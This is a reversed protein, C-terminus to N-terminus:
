DEFVLNGWTHFRHGHTGGDNDPWSYLVYPDEPKGTYWWRRLHVGWKDGPSPPLAAGEDIKRLAAFPVAIELTWGEDIDDSQNLTGQIDVARLLGECTWDGHLMEELPKLPWPFGYQRCLDEPLRTGEPPFDFWMDRVNNLPNMHFEFYRKGDFGPDFLTEIINEPPDATYMVADRETSFGRVDPDTVAYAFYLYQDDWVMKATTSYRSTKGDLVNGFVWTPLTQKWVPDDLKGDIVPPTDTKRCEYERYAGTKPHSESLQKYFFKAWLHNVDHEVALKFQECAHRYKGQGLFGLGVIFRPEAESVGLAEVSFKAFPDIVDSPTLQKMGSKILDAFLIDAEQHRGLEQLSLGRFYAMKLDKAPTKACVAKEFSARADDPQSNKLYAQGLYYYVMSDPGGFYSQGEELNPPYLLAARFDKIAESYEKRAMSGTGRLVYANVYLDHNGGQGEWRRFHQHDVFEIAEDLRGNLIFLEVMSFLAKDIDWRKITDKHDELFELRKEPLRQARSYLTDLEYIIRADHPDLAIAKELYSIGTSLDNKIRVYELGTNRYAHKNAPDLRMSTQWYQIAQESQDYYRYINGLYYYARGDEPNYSVASKLIKIMDTRFPFCYDVPKESGANYYEQAKGLNGMKEYGCGLTYYLLPYSDKYEAVYDTLFEVAETYFGSNMYELAMELHTQTKDAQMCEYMRKRIKKAEASQGPQSQALYLEHMARFDLPNVLLISEAIEAAKENQDLHRYVAAMLGYAQTDSMDKAKEQGSTIDKLYNLASIFDGQLCALEALQYTAEHHVGKDWAAQSFAEVADDLTKFYPEYEGKIKGQERLVLGLYYFAESNMPRTYLQTVREIATRLSKEAEDFMGRKLYRIGVLTNVQANGPDRRLAENYYDMPNLKANHFQDIRLGTLYLEEVTTIEKPSRIGDLAEPKPRNPKKIAKSTLIEIGDSDALLVEVDDSKINGPIDIDHIWPNGPAVSLTKEYLVEVDKRVTLQAKKHNATTLIGIRMKNDGAATVNVAGNLNAFRFGDLDRVPYWYYKVRRTEYPKRWSYDPQNDSFSGTMLELYPGAKDTLIRDWAQPATETSNSGDGHGPGWLFFKKGPALYHDAFSIIGADNKHDYFGFFDEEYSWAFFSASSPHNKYFSLDANEYQIGRYDGSGLPWDIVAVKHHDVTYETTPPFIVQSESNVHVATNAFCLMSHNLPTRNLSYIAAEVYSKGPYVTIGILTRTRDRLEMESIWATKSGDENDILTYDVPMFSRARHHHPIDWEIGGSIWAGLMGILAPRIVDNRYVFDYNNTKDLASFIRGGIEPLIGVRIYENELYVMTYKRDDDRQDKLADIFPYPYIPGQAGQYIRGTYFFPKDEPDGVLYTPITVEEEYLAVEDKAYGIQSLSVLVASFLCIRLCGCLARKSKQRSGDAAKKERVM